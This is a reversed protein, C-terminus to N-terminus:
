SGPCYDARTKTLATQTAFGYTDVIEKFSGDEKIKALAADYANRFDKDAPRFAAGACSQPADGVPYVIELESDGAKALLDAVVLGSLAVADIRGNQLMSIGSAGDPFVIVNERAVGADLAYGEEACGGCVGVVAGASALDAYNNLGKPNGAKVAFAEADCVDPESFLVAECREPKIYLGAAVLDFRNALLGPIMAGYDVVVAEVNEIGLENLVAKAVDPAAGGINGDGDISSYPPENAIAIKATGANKLRELTGEAWSAAPAVTMAATAAIAAMTLTKSSKM